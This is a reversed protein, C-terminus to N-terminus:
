LQLVEVLPTFEYSRTDSADRGGRREPNRNPDENQRGTNILQLFLFTSKLIRFHSTISALHVKNCSCDGFTPYLRLGGAERATQPSALLVLGLAIGRIRVRFIELRAQLVDKTAAEVVYM